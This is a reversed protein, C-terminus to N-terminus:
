CCGEDPFVIVKNKVETSTDLVLTPEGLSCEAIEQEKAYANWEDQPDKDTVICAGGGCHYSNTVRHVWEYIYVKKM